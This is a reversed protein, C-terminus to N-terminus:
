VTSLISHSSAVFDLVQLLFHFGFLLIFCSFEFLHREALSSKLAEELCFTCDILVDHSILRLNLLEGVINLVIALQYVEDRNVLAMQGNVPESLVLDPLVHLHKVVESHTLDGVSVQRGRQVM